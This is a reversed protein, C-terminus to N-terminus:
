FRYAARIGFDISSGTSRSFNNLNVGGSSFGFGPTVDVSNSLNLTVNAGVIFDDTVAFDGGGILGIKTQNVNIYTQPQRFRPSRNPSRM